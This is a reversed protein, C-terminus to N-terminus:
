FPINLDHTLLLYLGTEHIYLRIESKDYRVLENATNSGSSGTSPKGKWWGIIVLGIEYINAISNVVSFQM